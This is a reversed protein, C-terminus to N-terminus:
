HAARRRCDGDTWARLELATNRTRSARRLAAEHGAPLIHPMRRAPTTSPAIAKITEPQAAVSPEGLGPVTEGEAGDETEGRGVPVALVDNCEVVVGGADRLELGVLSRAAWSSAAM